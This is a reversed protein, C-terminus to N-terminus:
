SGTCQYGNGLAQAVAKCADVKYHPGSATSQLISEVAGPSLTPDIAKLLGVLGAVLPGAM